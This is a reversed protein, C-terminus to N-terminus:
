DLASLVLSRFLYEYRDTAYLAGSSCTGRLIHIAVQAPFSRGLERRNTVAQFEM